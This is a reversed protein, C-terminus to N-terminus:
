NCVMNKGSTTLDRCKFPFAFKESLFYYSTMDSPNTSPPDIVISIADKGVSILGVGNVEFMELNIRHILNEPYALFTKNSFFKYRLAQYLGSKWDTLKAEVSILDQTHAEYNRLQVPRNEVIEIFKRSELFETLRKQGTLAHDDSNGGGNRDRSSNLFNVFHGMLGYDNLVLQEGTIATTFVLDAIGNGTGFEKQFYKTGYLIALNEVLIPIMDREFRFM